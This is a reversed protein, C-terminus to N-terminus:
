RLTFLDDVSHVEGRKARDLFATAPETITTSSHGSLRRPHDIERTSTRVLVANKSWPLRELNALYAAFKGQRILFFEVDSVYFVGVQFRRARLWDGLVSFTKTGAFDGVVPVLRDDRQLDRVRQYLPESALFHRRAGDTGKALILRASTPYMPLALFKANLGPGALRTQMTALDQWEEDRVVELSELVVRVDGIHEQQRSRDYPASQFAEVLAEVETDHRLGQPSRSTLRKLYSARDPSLAFIAKHLLHLLLNRRRFDVVFALAPKAQAIMSFNQDPGVGLYVSDEDARIALEGLIAPISDENSVFNDAHRASTTESCLSIVRRISQDRAPFTLDMLLAM